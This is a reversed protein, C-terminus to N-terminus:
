PKTRRRWDQNHWRGQLSHCNLILDRTINMPTTPPRISTSANFPTRAKAVARDVAVEVLDPINSRLPSTDPTPARCSTVQLNLLLTTLLIQITTYYPPNPYYHLSSSNPYYLLLSSQTQPLLRELIHELLPINIGMFISSYTTKTPNILAM